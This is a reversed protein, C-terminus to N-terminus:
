CKNLTYVQIQNSLSSKTLYFAAYTRKNRWYIILILFWAGFETLYHVHTVLSTWVKRRGVDDVSFLIAFHLYDTEALLLKRVTIFATLYILRVQEIDLM